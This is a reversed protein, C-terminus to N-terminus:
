ECREPQAEQELSQQRERELAHLFEELDALEEPTPPITNRQWEETEFPRAARREPTARFPAFPDDRQVPSEAISSKTMLVMWGRLSQHDQRSLLTETEGGDGTELVSLYLRKM